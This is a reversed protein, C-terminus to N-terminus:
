LVYTPCTNCARQPLSVTTHASSDSARALHFVGCPRGSSVKDPMPVTLIRGCAKTLDRRVTSPLALKRCRPSDRSVEFGMRLFAGQSQYQLFIFSGRPGRM